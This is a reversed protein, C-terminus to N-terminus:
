WKQWNSTLQLTSVFTLLHFKLIIRM